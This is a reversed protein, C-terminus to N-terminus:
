LICVRSLEIQLSRIRNNELQSVQHVNLLEPARHAQARPHATQRFRRQRAVNVSAHSLDALTMTMAIFEIGDISRRQLLAAQNEAADRRVSFEHLNNLQRAVFMGPKETALKMGFEFRFRQRGM